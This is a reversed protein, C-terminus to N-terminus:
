AAVAKSAYAGLLALADALTGSPKPALHTVTKRATKGRAVAWGTSAHYWDGTGDTFTIYRTNPWPGREVAAVQRFEGRISFDFRIVMGPRIDLTARTKTRM